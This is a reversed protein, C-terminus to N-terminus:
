LRRALATERMGTLRSRLAMADAGVAELAIAEDEDGDVLGERGIAVDDEVAAM